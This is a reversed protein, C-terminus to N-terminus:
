LIVAAIPQESGCYKCKTAADPIDNSLCAPCTKVSPGEGFVEAGKRAMIHKYPTVILFYVVLMFVVFYIIASIFSGIDLFTKQNGSRGLEIGLGAGSGGQFRTIIPNIIFDTFAKILTSFALAVILGIAVVVVDGRMLFNKFGKLMLRSVEGIAASAAAGQGVFRAGADSDLMIPPVPLGGEFRSRFPSSRGDPLNRDARKRSVSPRPLASRLTERWPVSARTAFGVSERAATGTPRRHGRRVLALM